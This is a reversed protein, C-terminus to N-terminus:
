FPLNMGAPLIGFPPPCLRRPALESGAHSGDTHACPARRPLLWAVGGSAGLLPTQHHLPHLYVSVCVGVGCLTGFLAFDRPDQRGDWAVDVSLRGGPVQSFFLTGDWLNLPVINWFTGSVCVCVCLTSECLQAACFDCFGAGVAAEKTTERGRRARHLPTSNPHGHTWGCPLGMRWRVTELSPPPSPLFPFYSVNQISIGTKMAHSESGAGSIPGLHM